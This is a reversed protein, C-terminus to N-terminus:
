LNGFTPRYCMARSLNEGRLRLERGSGSNPPHFFDARLDDAIASVTSQAVPDMVGPKPLVHVVHGDMSSGGGAVTPDVLRKDGM